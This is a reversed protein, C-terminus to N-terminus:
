GLLLSIMAFKVSAGQVVAQGAAIGAVLACAGLGAFWGAQRPTALYLLWRQAPKADLRAELAALLVAQRRPDLEPAYEDLRARLAEDKM